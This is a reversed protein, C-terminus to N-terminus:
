SNKPCSHFGLSLKYGWHVGQKQVTQTYKYIASFGVPLWKIPVGLQLREALLSPKNMRKKFKYQLSCRTEKRECLGTGQIEEHLIM